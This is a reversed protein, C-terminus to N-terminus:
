GNYSSRVAVTCTTLYQNYTHISVLVFAATWHTDVTVVVSIAALLTPAYRIVHFIM